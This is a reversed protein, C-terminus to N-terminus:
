YTTKYYNISIRLYFVCSICKRKIFERITTVFCLQKITNIQYRLAFM